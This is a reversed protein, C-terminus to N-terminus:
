CLQISVQIKPHHRGVLRSQLIKDEGTWGWTPCPMAGPAGQRDCGLPPGESGPDWTTFPPQHGGPDWHCCCLGAKKSKEPSLLSELTLPSTPPPGQM